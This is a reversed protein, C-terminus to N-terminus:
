RINHNASGRSVLRPSGFPYMRLSPGYSAITGVKSLLVGHLAANVHLLLGVSARNLEGAAEVGRLHM